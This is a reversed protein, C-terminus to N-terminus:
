WAGAQIPSRIRTTAGRPIPPHHWFAIIWDQETANLDAELWSLMAGGPSLDSDSSDLSIFHINAHDFAYYAETGSALGGAEGAIPLTFADFYPGTQTLSSASNADHNGFAPWLWTNALVSPYLDFVAAQYQADTGNPYANDGLMLWLDAAAGTTFALYADRVAAANANATGSDGIVWIRAPRRTGAPPPTEFYRAADGPLLLDTDTGIGYYYRTAPELGSVEIAHETKPVVDVVVQTLSEPAAGFVVRSTGAADTRWRIVGSSPTALQLYPGRTLQPPGAVAPAAMLLAAWMALLATMGSPRFPSSPRGHVQHVTVDMEDMEDMEDM